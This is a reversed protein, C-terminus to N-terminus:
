QCAPMLHIIWATKVLCTDNGNKSSSRYLFSQRREATLGTGYVWDKRKRKGTWLKLSHVNGHSPFWFRLDPDRRLVMTLNGKAARGTHRHHRSCVYLRMRASLGVPPSINCQDREPANCHCRRPHLCKEHM